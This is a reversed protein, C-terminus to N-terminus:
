GAPALTAVFDYAAMPGLLRLTVRGDWGAALEGLAQELEDQRGTEVLVALHVADEEHTPERVVSAVCCDAIADGAQRTDAERRATVAANVIEGLRMRQARSADEDGLERIQQRLEEAEQNEALVEALIVDELYRGKIVYQARGELERLAAAFEDHHPSLLEEAVADRGTVVAGFRLPLVPAEAATLDLLRQHAELDEPRGLPRSTDIESVLAAIDHHRVVGLRGPPDGVGRASENVEVDAPLIGYVYCARGDGGGPGRGSEATM